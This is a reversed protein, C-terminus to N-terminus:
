LRNLHKVGFFIFVSFCLGIITWVWWTSRPKTTTESHHAAGQQVTITDHVVVTQGTGQETVSRDRWRVVVRERVRELTDYIVREVIQEVDNTITMTDHKVVEQAVNREITLTDHQTVVRETTRCGMTGIAILALFIYTLKRM